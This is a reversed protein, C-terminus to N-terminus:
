LVGGLGLENVDIYGFQDATTQDTATFAFAASYLADGTYELAGIFQEVALEASSVCASHAAMISSGQASNGGADAPTAYLAASQTQWGSAASTVGDFVEGAARSLAQPVVEM